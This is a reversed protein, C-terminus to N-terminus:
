LLEELLRYSEGLFTQMEDASLKRQSLLALRYLHSALREAKETDSELLANVRTILPSATNVTLTADTPFSFDGDEGNGLRYMRMMDEMRRSEESVNLLLPVGADKLASVAVKLSADGSVRSFLDCLTQNEVADGKNLADTNADVRLFKVGENVSELMAAFQTDLISDFEVVRFGENQYLAIYQAQLAPDTTYYVTKAESGELYEDLTLHTGDTLKLLLAEKTRDRFKSDRLAAFEVFTKIDDFIKAYAERDERCLSVLKDAVKKVIHASVKSVYTNNQLYSRSVNLPLEPCDLVGRLMLLHEPLVEKVNDSVFVQNYYLKIQGELPEYGNNIRPFYLIGKFNLPYDANIHIW